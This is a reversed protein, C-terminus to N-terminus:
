APSGHFLRANDIAVAAQDAFGALLDRDTYQFYWQCGSQRCIVGITIGKIQPPAYSPSCNIASSATSDSVARRGPCQDTVIPEGSAAVQRVISHSIELSAVDDLTEKRSTAPWRSKWGATTSLLLM